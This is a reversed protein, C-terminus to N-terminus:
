EDVDQEVRHFLRPLREFCTTRSLTVHPGPPFGLLDKFFEQLPGNRDTPKFDFTIESAHYKGFLHNM